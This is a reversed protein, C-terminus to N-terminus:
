VLVGMPLRARVRTGRSDPCEIRCDGGLEAARERLSVLGVGSPTGAAIGVGDDTVEVIVAGEETTLRVTATTAGAHRAVNTLAESAIRYAAVEVAAPLRDLQDDGEVTVTLGPARLRAAQQRVAGLLGVDDLAPPRLDHVLRRVDAVAATVDERAQRLLRDAEEPRRGALNRATDIRLGVGGLTPGLGDHLDRRLRRREEERAAVILERSRQLERALHASRAAVAAQRVVDALLREDRARNALIAREPLLVRGITEGWYTIPLARAPGDPTGSRAVMQEGGPRNVEVVVYPLRFAGAVVRAVALLEDSPSASRELQEALGSVVQYPDDRRGLVLRRVARWLRHRLPGYGATVILLAVVAADREPLQRGLLAGTAGLVCADVVLVTVAMAGYLATGGLLRDVDLLRPRVLAIAIAAGTLGVAPGIAVSAFGPLVLASLFVLVDALAAWLLWRMALRDDGTAGRFRRVVVAFSVIMGLPLLVWLASLLPVWVDGPLPLSAPDLDLGDFVAGAPEGAREDAVWSPVVLTALPAVSVLALGAYAIVRWRGPPLRGSPYILLLLSLWILLAAGLRNYIWFAASAGPLDNLTAYALWSAAAGDAIWHLGSGILLWTVPHRPLRRLMIAGPVLLGLGPLGVTWMMDTGTLERHRAPVRLDLLTAAVLVAVAAGILAAAAATRRQVPTVADDDCSPRGATLPRIDRIVRSM